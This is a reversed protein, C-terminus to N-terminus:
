GRRQPPRSGSPRPRAGAPRAGAPRAGSPRPRAGAPRAGAPRAGAPRAGASRKAGSSKSGSGKKAGPKRKPIRNVRETVKRVVRQPKKALEAKLKATEGEHQIDDMTKNYFDMLEVSGREDDDFSTQVTFLQERLNKADDESKIEKMRNRYGIIQEKRQAVKRAIIEKRENENKLREEEELRKAEEEQRKAEEEQRKAEAEEEAKRRM